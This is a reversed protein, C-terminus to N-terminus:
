VEVLKQCANAGPTYVRGRPLDCPLQLGKLLRYALTGGKEPFSAFVSEDARVDWNPVYREHNIPLLPFLAALEPNIDAKVDLYEKELFEGNRINVYDPIASEPLQLQEELFNALGASTSPFSASSIPAPASSSPPATATSPDPRSSEGVCHRKGPRQVFPVNAGEDVIDVFESAVSDTLPDPVAGAPTERLVETVSDVVDSSGVEM